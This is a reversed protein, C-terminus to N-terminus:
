GEVAGPRGMADMVREHRRVNDDISRARARPSADDVILEDDVAKIYSDLLDVPYGRRLAVERAAHLDDLDEGANAGLNPDHDMKMDAMYLVRNDESIAHLRGGGELPAAGKAM